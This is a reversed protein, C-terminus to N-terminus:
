MGEASGPLGGEIPVVPLAFGDVDAPRGIFRWQVSEQWSLYVDALLADPAAALGGEHQRRM